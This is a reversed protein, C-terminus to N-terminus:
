PAMVIRGGAKAVSEAVSEASRQRSVEVAPASISATEAAVREYETALWEIASGVAAVSPPHTMRRTVEELLEEGDDVVTALFLLAADFQEDTTTAQNAHTVASISRPPFIPSCPWVRGFLTFEIPELLTEPSDFNASGM